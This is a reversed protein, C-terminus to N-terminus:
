SAPLPLRLRSVLEAFRTKLDTSGVLDTFVLSLVRSTAGAEPM